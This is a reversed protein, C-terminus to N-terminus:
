AAKRKLNFWKENQIGTSEIWSLLVFDGDRKLVTYKYPGIHLTDNQAM